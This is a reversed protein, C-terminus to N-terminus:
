RKGVSLAFLIGIADKKRSFVSTFPESNEASTAVVTQQIPQRRTKWVNEAQTELRQRM